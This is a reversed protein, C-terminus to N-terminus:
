PERVIEVDDLVIRGSAPGGHGVGFDFRVAVIRGLDLTRGNTQFDTLRMRYSQYSSRDWDGLIGYHRHLKGYPELSITSKYGYADILTVDFVQPVEEGYLQAVHFSLWAADRFDQQSPIISTQYFGGPNTWAIEADFSEWWNVDDETVTLNTSVVGGSSSQGVSHNTEFDDVVFLAGKGEHWRGVIANDPDISQTGIPRFTDTHRLFFDPEPANGRVVRQVWPQLWGKTVAEVEDRTMFGISDYCTWMENYCGHTVDYHMGWAREGTARGYRRTPQIEPDVGIVDLDPLDWFLLYPTDWPSDGGSEPNFSTGAIDHIGLITNFGYLTEGPPVIGPFSQSGFLHRLQSGALTVGEGGRSHGSLVIQKGYVVSHGGPELVGGGMAPYNRPAGSQLVMREVNKLTLWARHYPDGYPENASIGHAPFMDFSATIFGHSALMEQLYQYGRYSLDENTNGHSFTVLPYLRGPQLPWPHVVLGRSRAAYAPADQFAPIQFLGPDDFEFSAFGLPGLATTDDVVYIGADTPHLGDILDGPDLKGNRDFDFVVDYGVGLGEGADGGLGHSWLIATNAQITGPLVTLSEPGDYTVDTLAPDVAWKGPPRHKVVYADYAAGVRDPLRTPDIASRLLDNENVARVVEFFPYLDLSRGALGPWPGVNFVVVDQTFADKAILKGAGNKEGHVYLTLPLSSVPYTAPLPVQAGIRNFLIFPAAPPSSEITVTGGAVGGSITIPRMQFRLQNFPAEVARAFNRPVYVGTQAITGNAHLVDIHVPAAAITGAATWLALIALGARLRQPITM